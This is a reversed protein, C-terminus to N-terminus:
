EHLPGQWLNGEGVVGTCCLAWDSVGDITSQLEARLIAATINQAAHAKATSPIGKVEHVSSQYVEQAASM